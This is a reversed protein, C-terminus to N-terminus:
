SFQGAEAKQEAKQEAESKVQALRRLRVERNSSYFAVAPYATGNVGPITVTRDADPGTTLTITLECLGADFRMRLIDGPHVKMRSDKSTDLSAGNAYLEGNFCRLVYMGSSNYAESFPQTAVGFCTCESTNEDNVLEM